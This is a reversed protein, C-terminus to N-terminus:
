DGQGVALIECTGDAKPVAVYLLHFGPQYPLAAPNRFAELLGANDILGNALYLGEDRTAVHVDDAQIGGLIERLTEDANIGAAIAVQCPDAAFAPPSSLAALIAFLALKM